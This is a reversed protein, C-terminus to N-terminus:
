GKFNVLMVISKVGSGSADSIEIMAVTLALSLVPTSISDKTATEVAANVM